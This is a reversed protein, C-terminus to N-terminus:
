QKSFTKVWIHHVDYFKPLQNSIDTDDHEIYYLNWYIWDEDSITVCNFHVRQDFDQNCIYFCESVIDDCVSLKSILSSTQLQRHAANEFSTSRRKSGKALKMLTYSSNPFLAIVHTYASCLLCHFLNM